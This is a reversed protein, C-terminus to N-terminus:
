NKCYSKGVKPGFEKKLRDQSLAVACVGNNKERIPDKKNGNQYYYLPDGCSGMIYNCNASDKCKGVDTGCSDVGDKDYSGNNMTCFSTGRMMDLENGGQSKQTSSDDKYVFPNDSMEKDQKADAQEDLKKLTQSDLTGTKELGESGQFNKIAETSNKGIIGDEKLGLQGQISKIQDKNLDVPSNNVIPQTTNTQTTNQM